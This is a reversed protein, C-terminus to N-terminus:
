RLLLHNIGQFQNNGAGNTGFTTWNKGTMDDIRVIRDNGSDAIYIQGNTGVSVSSPGAFQGTGSGYISGFRVEGSGDLDDFRVLGQSVPAYIHGDPTVCFRGLGSKMLRQYGTGLMDDIRSIYGNGKFYIKDTSAVFVNEVSTIQGNNNWSIWNAGTMDDIRIIRGNGGDALYIRSDPGIAVSVLTNFKGIGDGPAGFEVRNQGSLNDVRIVKSGVVYYIKGHPGVTFSTISIPTAKWNSGSMDDFHILRRNSFVYIGPLNPTAPGPVTISSVARKTADFRSTAVV